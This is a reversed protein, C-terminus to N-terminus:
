SIKLAFSHFTTLNKYGVKIDLSYIKNISPFIRELLLQKILIESNIAMKNTM